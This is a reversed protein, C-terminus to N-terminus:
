YTDTKNVIFDIDLDKFLKNLDNIEKNQADTLKFMSGTKNNIYKQNQGTLFSIFNAIKSYDNYGKGKKLMKLLVLIAVVKIRLTYQTASNNSNPILDLIEENQNNEIEKKTESNTARANFNINVTIFNAFFKNKLSLLRNYLVGNKEYKVRLKDKPTFNELFKGVNDTLFSYEEAFESFIEVTHHVWVLANDYNSNENEKYYNINLYIGLLEFTFVEHKSSKSSIKIMRYLRIFDHDNSRRSHYNIKEGDYNKEKGYPIEANELCWFHFYIHENM